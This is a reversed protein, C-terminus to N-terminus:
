GEREGESNYRLYNFFHTPFPRSFSKPRGSHNPFRITLEIQELAIRGKLVFVSQHRGDGLIRFGNDNMLKRLSFIRANPVNVEVVHMDGERNSKLRRLTARTVKPVYRKPNVGEPPTSESTVEFEKEEMLGSVVLVFRQSILHRNWGEILAEKAKISKAFVVFGASESDLRNVMFLKASPDVTKYHNSLIWIVTNERDKHTTNVSYIGASKEVVVYSDDEWIVKIKPHRLPKPMPSQHVTVLSGSELPQTALTTSRGDVCVRGSSIVQKTASRSRGSINQLFPLLSTLDRVKYSEKVPTINEM